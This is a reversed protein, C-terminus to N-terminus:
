CAGEIRWGSEYKRFRFRNYTHFCNSSVTALRQPHCRTTVNFFLTHATANPSMSHPPVQTNKEAFEDSFLHLWQRTRATAPRLRLPDHRWLIPFTRPLESPANHTPSAARPSMRIKCTFNYVRTPSAARPSIRKKPQHPWQAGILGYPSNLIRNRLNQFFKIEEEPKRNWILLISRVSM